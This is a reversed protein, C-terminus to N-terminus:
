GSMMLPVVNPFFILCYLKKGILGIFGQMQRFLLPGRNHITQSFDVMFQLLRNVPVTFRQYCVIDLQEEVVTQTIVIALENGAAHDVLIDQDPKFPQQVIIEM